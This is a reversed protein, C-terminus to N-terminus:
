SEGGREVVGLLKESLFDLRELRGDLLACQSLELFSSWEPLANSPKPTAIDLDSDNGDVTRAEAIWSQIEQKSMRTGPSESALLKAFAKKTKPPVKFLGFYNARTM